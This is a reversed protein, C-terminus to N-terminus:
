WRLLRAGALGCALTVIGIAAGYWTVFFLPNDQVCFLSYGTAAGASVALGALAGALGPATPAGRQLLRLAMTAPLASILVILGLCEALAAPSVDAFRLDPSRSAFTVLWLVAALAAPVALVAMGARPRLQPRAQRVALRLALICLLAPLVTKMLVAPQMLAAALDGRPSLVLLFVGCALATIGIIRLALGPLWLPQPAAEAALAAILDDTKM